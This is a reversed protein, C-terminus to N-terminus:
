ELAKSHLVNNAPWDEKPFVPGLDIPFIGREEFLKKEPEPMDLIGILYIQPAESGLNDRIWGMWKLFNPDEASFGILCFINEMLSQQVMNVFAAFEKPYLRYDEETITFPTIDPFTGHLKVIRPKRSNHIRGVKRIVEYKRNHVFPLTRELLTDYNTTFIDAWPLKLLMEHLKGPFYDNDPIIKQLLRNLASRGFTVRYGSAVRLPDRSHLQESYNANISPYLEKYMINALEKWSPFPQANVSRTEANRSFGAGVMLGVNGYEDGSWLREKIQELYNLSIREIM